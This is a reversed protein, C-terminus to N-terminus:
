NIGNIDINEIKNINTLELEITKINNNADIININTLNIIIKNINEKGEVTIDITENNDVTINKYKLMLEQLTIQYNVKYSGDQYKTTYEEQKNVILNYINNINFYNINLLLENNDLILENNNKIYLNDKFYYINNNYKIIQENNKYTTEIIEINDLKEITTKTEYNNIQNLKDIITEEKIETQPERYYNTTQPDTTRVIIALIAIPILWLGLVIMAHYRPNNWLTFFTEHKEIFQKYKKTNKIKEKLKM